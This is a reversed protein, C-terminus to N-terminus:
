SNVGSRRWEKSKMMKSLTDERKFLQEIDNARMELTERQQPDLASAQQFEAHFHELQKATRRREM